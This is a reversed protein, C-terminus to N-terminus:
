TRCCRYTATAIVPSHTRETWHTTLAQERHELRAPPRPELDVGAPVLTWLLGRRSPQHEVSRRPPYGM